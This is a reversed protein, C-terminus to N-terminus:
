QYRACQLPNLIHIHAREKSNTLFLWLNPSLNCYTISNELKLLTRKNADVLHAAAWCSICQVHQFNLFLEGHLNDLLASLERGLNEAEAASFLTTSRVTAVLLDDHYEVHLLESM